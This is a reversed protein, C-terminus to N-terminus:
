SRGTPWDRPWWASMTKTQERVSASIPVGWAAFYPALDRNVLRSLRLVLQDQRQQETRIEHGQTYGLFLRTFVEWGFERQILALLTLGTWPDADYIRKAGKAAVVQEVRKQIEAPAMAPHATVSTGNFFEAAYLSYLNNTTEWWGDWTWAQVQFNHGVEHYFGWLPGGSKGRLIQMNVFVESVDDGTMIPYGAHMYGASIQRDVQYREDATEVPASYFRACVQVVEDWYQAVAKADALNRLVTSPVSIASNKGVLEGWPAPANRIARWEEPTTRGLFFVPAAVSGRITVRGSPLNQDSVLYVMGGFPSAIQTVPGTAPRELDISPFREWADHHWNADSHGGIRVRVQKPDWGAPLEVTVLEGPPAYRGTSWWRRKAGGTSITVTDKPAEPPVAGPFDASAPHAKVKAPALGRWERDFEQMALREAVQTIRVPKERTPVAPPVAKLGHTLVRYFNAEPSIGHLISSLTRTTTKAEEPTLARRTLLKAAAKEGHHLETPAELKFGGNQGEIMGETLLLGMPELLRNASFEKNLSKGPNLQQWGWACGMVLLGKGSKIVERLPAIQDLNRDLSGMDLLIIDVAKSAEGITDPQLPVWTFSGKSLPEPVGTGLHGVIRKGPALWELAQRVFEANAPNGFLAGHGLAMVRGEGYTAHALIPKGGDSTATIAAQPGFAAVWGPLAGPAKLTTGTWTPPTALVLLLALM